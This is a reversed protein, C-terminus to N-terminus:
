PKAGNERFFKLLPPAMNRPIDEGWAGGDIKPGKPRGAQDLAFFIPIADSKLGVPELQKMWEDLDLRIIYTGAFADTMLPDNMFARLAKCPGCWEATMQVFPVKGEKRANAVERQLIARLEGQGPKFTVVTAPTAAGGLSAVFMLALAPAVFRWARTWGHSLRIMAIPERTFTTTSNIM